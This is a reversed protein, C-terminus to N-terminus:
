PLVASLAAEIAFAFREVLAGSLRSPSLRRANNSLDDDLLVRHEPDIVAAVLRTKGHYPLRASSEAADWRLRTVAGDESVMDVDVPFRLAGRRRVLVSGDFGGDPGDTSTLDAM